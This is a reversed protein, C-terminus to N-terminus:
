YIQSTDRPSEIPSQDAILPNSTDLDKFNIPEEDIETQHKKELHNLFLDLEKNFKTRFKNEQLTKNEHNIKSMIEM